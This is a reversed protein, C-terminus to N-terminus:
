KLTLQPASRDWKSELVENVRDLVREGGMLTRFARMREAPTMRVFRALGYEAWHGEGQSLDGPDKVYALVGQAAYANLGARRLFVEWHSEDQIVSEQFNQVESAYRTSFFGVWKALTMEGGGIYYVHGQTNLHSVFGVFEAYSTIESPVMDRVTEDKRNGESVLIILREYRQSVQKVREHSTLEGKRELIQRQMIQLLTIIVIGTVPSVILDAETGIPSLAPLNRASAQSPSVIKWRDFDREIFEISPYLKELCSFLGRSISLGKIIKMPTDPVHFEPCPALAPARMESARTPRSVCKSDPKQQASVDPQLSAPFFSSSDQKRRKAERIDMFTSLLASVTMESDSDAILNASSTQNQAAADQSSGSRFPRVLKYNSTSGPSTDTYADELGSDRRRRKALSLLIDTNGATRDELDEQEDDIESLILIGPRKWVYSASTVISKADPIALIAPLDRGAELSEEVLSQIDIRKLFPVWRLKADAKQNRRWLPVNSIELSDHLYSLQASIKLPHRQWEPKPVSFDTIPVKIRAVADAVSISQQETTKELLKSSHELIQQFHLDHDGNGVQTDPETAAANDLASDMDMSRVMAPIDLGEDSSVLPSLPLEIRISSLDPLGIEMEPLGRLPSMQPTAAGSTFLDEESETQIMRDHAIRLDDELLSAPDSPYQVESVEPDPFYPEESSPMPSLPPTVVLQRLSTPNPSFEELLKHQDSETWETQLAQALSFIAAKRVDLKETRISHSLMQAFHYAAAPFELGEDNDIDLRESPFVTPSIRPQRQERIMGAFERCDYDPDSSLAPLELKLTAQLNKRIEYQSKIPEPRTIENDKIGALTRHLWAAFQKPADLQEHFDLNEAPIQLQPLSADSILREAHPLSAGLSQALSLAQRTFDVTLGNKLAYQYPPSSDGESDFSLGQDM